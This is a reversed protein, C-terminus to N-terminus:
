NFIAAIKSTLNPDPNAEKEEEKDGLYKTVETRHVQYDEGTKAVSPGLPGHHRDDREQPGGTQEMKRLNKHPHLHLLFFNSTNERNMEENNHKIQTYHLNFASEAAECRNVINPQKVAIKLQTEPHEESTPSAEHWM